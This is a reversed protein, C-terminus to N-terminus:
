ASSEGRFWSIIEDAVLERDIDNVLVHPSNELKVVKKKRSGINKEIMDAAQVPVTKDGHSVIILTEARVLPIRKKTIGQLKYFEYVQSVQRWRWYHEAILEREPDEHSEDYPAKTEKIFFRMLPTLCILRNNNYVAPAALAIKPVDFISAILLALLGGMSSGTVFVEEYESRLDLYADVARRIWDRSGSARFDFKDTGHGPLRPLSVTYAERNLKEALYRLNDTVGTFGHLALVAKGNSGQYFFPRGISKVRTDPSIKTIDMM